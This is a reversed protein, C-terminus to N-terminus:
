AAPGWDAGGEDLPTRTVPVADGGDLRMTFVDHQGGVGTKGFTISHGDPSFSASLVSTTLPYHTVQQLGTGNVRITYLNGFREDPLPTTRFLIRTGDPSWDAHDGANLQWPTIRHLGSGNARVIFLAYAGAPKGLPSNHVEFVLRRGDPSWMANGVDASYARHLTIHTLARAHTGDANMVWLESRQIQGIDDRVAGWGRNFAISRGDPSWSAAGADECAPPPAASCDPSLQTANTGDADVVWLACRAACREFGIKSGDPSWDPQDDAVGAPPNTIQHEGTGDPNVAFLPRTGSADLTRGFAIQGSAAPYTAQASLATALLTAFAILSALGFPKM